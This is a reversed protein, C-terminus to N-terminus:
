RGLWGDGERRALVLLMDDRLSEQAADFFARTLYPRGMEARRHGPLIALVRGLADTRDRRRHVPRDGRRLGPGARERRITKRKRSALDALFAGFDAYGRNEWHFQQTTRGLLGAAEGWTREGETCFTVHASSLGNRRALTLMGELLAARGDGRTRAPDAPATRDSPHLPRRVPAQPLLGGAAEYAHAWNHDFIYEGQSHSKAYLPMVAIVTGGQRAVLHCPQWGTRRGVSGSTELARLFRHTTFPDVPRPDLAGACADWDAAQVEDLGGIVEVEISAGGDM